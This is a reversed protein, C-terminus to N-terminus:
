LRPRLEPASRDPAQGHAERRQSIPRRSEDVTDGTFVPRLKSERGAPVGTQRHAIRGWYCGTPRVMSLNKRTKRSRPQVGMSAAAYASVQCRKPPLTAVWGWIM